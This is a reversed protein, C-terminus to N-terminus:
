TAEDGDERDGLGHRRLKSYFSQRSLGLMQAAAARNDKSLDLASEICLKEIVDSTERVIEKMPVRGVLRALHEVSRPLAKGRQPQMAAQVGKSRIILGTSGSDGAWATVASLEVDETGGFEGRIITPFNRIVGHDALTEQILALDIGPRGLWRDLPEGMVQHKSALQALELFARNAHLVTRDPGIIVCGDPTQELMGQVHRLPHDGTAAATDQDRFRLRVLLNVTGEQRFATAGIWAKRKGTSLSVEIEEGEGSARAAGLMAQLAEGSAPSFLSPLTTKSLRDIALAFENLAAPNAEVLRLSVADIVLVPESSLHFMMRYRTEALRLRAYEREMAQQAEVLRQQLAALPRLDRGVLFRPGDASERVAGYRFARDAGDGSPHNIESFARTSAPGARDVLDRAKARSDPSVIDVFAKGVWADYGDIATDDATAVFAIVGDADVLLAIDSAASIVSRAFPSISDPWAKDPQPLKSPDKPPASSM